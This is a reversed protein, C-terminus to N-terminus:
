PARLQRLDVVVAEGQEGAALMWVSESLRRVQDPWFQLVKGVRNVAGDQLTLHAGVALLAKGQLALALIGVEPQVQGVARDAIFAGLDGPNQDGGDFGVFAPADGEFEFLARRGAELGLTFGLLAQLQGEGGGIRDAGPVPVDALVTENGIRMKGLQVADVRGHGTLQRDTVVQVAYVRSSRAMIARLM